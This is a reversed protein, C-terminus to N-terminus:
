LPTPSEKQLTKIPAQTILGKESAMRCTKEKACARKAGFDCIEGGEEGEGV